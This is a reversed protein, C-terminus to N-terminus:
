GAHPPQARLSQEGLESAFERSLANWTMEFAEELRGDLERCRELEGARAQNELDKCLARFRGAGVAGAGGALRHSEREAAALNQEGIAEHVGSLMGQADYRFTELMHGIQAPGVAPNNSLVHLSGVMPPDLLSNTIEAVDTVLPPTGRTRVAALLQDIDFPKTLYGNAGAALLRKAQVPSADASVIIVPTDALDQDGRLAALVQEGPIDPLHLDLLVLDPRLERALAVGSSGERAVHLGLDSSLGFIKEVLRVNSPNDEIYLVSIAARLGQESEFESAVAAVASTRQPRPAAVESPSSTPLVFSVTTGVGEESSLSLEGGMAEVLGRALALGLGTGEIGRSAADLREFPTFLRTIAESSIGHGTDSVEIRVAGTETRGASIVVNGGRRNYKVANSVLNLLVQILRQRDARVYLSVNVPRQRIGVAATTAAPGILSKAEALVDSVQVPELSLRLDGSEIRSLDLLDDVIALLHRGAGLMQDLTEREGQEVLDRELLQGFGLIANLPTRLEHSVRSLFGSKAMNLREAELQALRSERRAAETQRYTRFLTLMSVLLLASSLYAIIAARGAWTEASNSSARAQNVRAASHASMADILARVRETIQNGHNTKVVKIAQAVDGKQYLDVSKELDRLRAALLAVLKPYDRTLAPDGRGESKLKQLTIPAQKVAQRAPTLYSADGTLLYGRESTEADLTDQMISSMNAEYNLGATVESRAKDSRNNSVIQMGAAAIDVLVVVVTLVILTGIYRRRRRHESLTGHHVRVDDAV